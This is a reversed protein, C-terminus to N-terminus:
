VLLACPTRKSVFAHLKPMTLPLSFAKIELNIEGTNGACSYRHVIHM